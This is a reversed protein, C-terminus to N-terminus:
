NFIAHRAEHVTYLSGCVLAFEGLNVARQMAAPISIAVEVSKSPYRERIKDALHEKAFARSTQPATVIVNAADPVLIDIMRDIEKDSLIGLVLTWEVNERGCRALWALMTKLSAAAGEPNHAGDLIFTRNQWQLVEFRMPWSVRSMAERLAHADPLLGISELMALAVAANEVQHAGHLPLFIGGIDCHLGRYFLRQGLLEMKELIAAVDRGVRILPATQQQAIAEIVRYAVDQAATVIPVNSKIIGAKDYAIHRLTPGLIEVHDMGVNTICTVLPNVVNTSDYRGGLGTEWVVHSVQQEAFYLLAMGTLVEFETLPDDGDVRECATRVRQALRFFNKEDVPQKQLTFRGRYGDFSPSTFTGVLHTPNAMLLSTLMAAVSGKGNTGAIHLFQLGQEPHHLEELLKQMRELGPRVGFRQRGKLWAEISVEAM